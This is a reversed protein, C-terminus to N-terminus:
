EEDEEDEDAVEEWRRAASAIKLNSYIGTAFYAAILTWLIGMIFEYMTHKTLERNSIM